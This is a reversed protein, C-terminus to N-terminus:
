FDDVRKMYCYIQYALATYFGYMTDKIVTVGHIGAGTVLLVSGNASEYWAVYITQLVSAPM